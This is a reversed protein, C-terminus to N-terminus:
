GPRLLSTAMDAKPALGDSRSADAFTAETLFLPREAQAAPRRKMGREPGERRGAPGASYPPNIDNGIQKVQSAWTESDTM